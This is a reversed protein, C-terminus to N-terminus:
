PSCEPKRTPAPAPLPRGDPRPAGPAPPARCGGRSGHPCTAPWAPRVPWAAHRSRATWAGSMHASSRCGSHSGAPPEQSMRHHAPPSAASPVGTNPHWDLFSPCAVHPLDLRGTVGARKGEAVATTAQRPSWQILSTGTLHRHHFRHNQARQTARQQRSLLQWLRKLPSTQAHVVTQNSRFHKLLSPLYPHRTKSGRLDKRRIWHLTYGGHGPCGCSRNHRM